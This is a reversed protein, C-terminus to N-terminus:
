TEPEDIEESHQVVQVLTHICVAHLVLHQGVTIKTLVATGSVM